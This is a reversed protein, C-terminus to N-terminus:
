IIQSVMELVQIVLSLIVVVEVLELEVVGVVVLEQYWLLLVAFEPSL